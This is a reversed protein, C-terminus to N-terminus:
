GTSIIAQDQKKNIKKVTTEPASHWRKLVNERQCEM